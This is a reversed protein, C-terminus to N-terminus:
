TCLEVLFTAGVTVAAAARWNLLDIGAKAEHGGGQNSATKAHKAAWGLPAHRDNALAAHPSPASEWPQPQAQVHAAAM